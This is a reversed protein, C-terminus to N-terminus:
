RKELPEPVQLGLEWTLFDRNYLFVVIAGDQRTAVFSDEAASPKFGKVVGERLRGFGLAKVIPELSKALDESDAYLEENYISSISYWSGDKVITDDVDDFHKEMARQIWKILDRGSRFSASKQLGTLIAKREPSGKEMTSALRILRSRDSATLKRSM